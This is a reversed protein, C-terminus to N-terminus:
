PRPGILLRIVGAPANENTGGSVQQGPISSALASTLGDVSQTLPTSPNAVVALGWAQLGIWFYKPMGQYTTSAPPGVDPMPSPLSVAWKESLFIVYLRSALLAADSTDKDFLLEVPAPLILELASRFADDNFSFIRPLMSKRLAELRLNAEATRQEAIKAREEAGAIDKAAELKYSEFENKTRATEERQLVVVSATSVVVAVAALAAFGLAWIMLQEWSNLDLGLVRRAKTIGVARKM